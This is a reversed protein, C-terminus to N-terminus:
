FIDGDAVVFPVIVASEATKHPEDALQIVCPILIGDGSNEHMCILARIFNRSLCSLELLLIRMELM